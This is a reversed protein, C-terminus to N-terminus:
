NAPQDLQNRMQSLFAKIQELKLIMEQKTIPEKRQLYERAGALTFGREKVLHKILKLAEIDEQKFRRDGKKNTKPKLHPFEQEWFRILSAKVGLMLAVEGITYYLKGAKPMPTGLGRVPLDPLSDEENNLPVSTAM